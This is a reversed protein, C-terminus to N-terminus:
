LYKVRNQIIYQFYIYYTRNVMYEISRWTFILAVVNTLPRGQVAPTDRQPM